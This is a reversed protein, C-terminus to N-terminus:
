FIILPWQQFSHTRLVMQALRLIRLFTRSGSITRLCIRRFFTTCNATKLKISTFLKECLWSRREKLTCPNFRSLNDQYSSVPAIVSLARKQVREIDNCLYEPLCHNIIAGFQNPYISPAVFAHVDGKVSIAHTLNTKYTELCSYDPGASGTRNTRGHGSWRKFKTANNKFNM